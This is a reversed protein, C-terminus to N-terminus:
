RAAAAHPCSIIRPAAPSRARRAADLVRAGRRHAEDALSIRMTDGIGGNLLIGLGCASKIVGAHTGAETIGIHLPVQPIEQALARYTAITAQVDRAKASVVVDGFDRQEFHRM